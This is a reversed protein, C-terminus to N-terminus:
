SRCEGKAKEDREAKRAAADEEQKKFREAKEIKKREAEEEQQEVRRLRVDKARKSDEFDEAAKAINFAKRQAAIKQDELGRKMNVEKQEMKPLLPICEPKTQAVPHGQSAMIGDNNIEWFTQIIENLPNNFSKKFEENGLRQVIKLVDLADNAYSRITYASPHVRHVASNRIRRVSQLKTCFSEREEESVGHDRFVRKNHFCFYETFKESLQTLEAEEPCSWHCDVLLQPAHTKCFQYLFYELQNQWKSLLRYIALFRDEDNQLSAIDNDGTATSTSDM